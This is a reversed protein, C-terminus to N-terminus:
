QSCWNCNTDNDSEHEMTKETELCPRLVKKESEKLKVRHDASVAFEVIQYTRKKTQRESPTTMQILNSSKNTDWFVVSAQIDWEGPCIGPQAYVM